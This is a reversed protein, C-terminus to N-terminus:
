ISITTLLNPLALVIKVNVDISRVIEVVVFDLEVDFNAVAV